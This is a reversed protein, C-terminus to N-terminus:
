DLFRVFFHVSQRSRMNPCSAHLIFSLLILPLSLSNSSRHSSLPVLPTVACILFLHRLLMKRIYIFTSVNIPVGIDVYSCTHESMSCRCKCVYCPNGHLVAFRPSTLQMHQYTQGPLDIRIFWQLSGLNWAMAWCASSM